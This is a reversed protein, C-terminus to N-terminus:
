GLLVNASTMPSRSLVFADTVTVAVKLKNETAIKVEAATPGLHADHKAWLPHGMLLATGLSKSVLIPYGSIENLDIQGHQNLASCISDAIRFSLNKWREWNPVQGQILDAVDLGLRWDLSPHMRMNDYSRLCDPCSTDCSHSKENGWRSSFDSNIIDVMKGFEKPKGLQTSYGAGNDLADAVFIEHTRLGSGSPHRRSRVGVILESPDILLSAKAARRVMEGFSVLAPYGAPCVDMDTVIAGSPLEDWNTEPKIVLVDTTKMEGIAFSFEAPAGIPSDLCIVSNDSQRVATFQRHNNDNVVVLRSQEHSSITAQNFSWSDDPAALEAVLPSTSAPGVEREDDYDQPSYDTRFGLPEYFVRVDTGAGCEPCTIISGSSTSQELWINECLGCLGYGQPQGMPDISYVRNGRPVFHAFGTVRHVSGDKVLESGPAFKSVAVSLPRDSVVADSLSKVGTPKYGYLSRVRSPFGFMPLLGYEALIQSLQDDLRNYTKQVVDDIESLLNTCIEEVIKVAQEETCSAFTFIKSIRNIENRNRLLRDVIYRNDQWDRAQGFSGHLAERTFSIGLPQLATRLVEAVVARKIVRVRMDLYPSVPAGSTLRLPNAYYYNDHSRDRCLTLAYSFVQGARGARGVRQQYNFRQPPVNAMMTARLAGIDVGAEMTTTVSLVDIPHTLTNERPPPLLAAGAKFYRQRERQVKLPRTQGTLEKIKLRRPQMEALWGYYDGLMENEPLARFDISACGGRHCVLLSNRAHRTHCILCEKASEIDAPIIEYKSVTSDRLSLLWGPALGDILMVETVWKVLEDPSITGLRNAVVALYNKLRSPCESSEVAWRAGPWLHMLGLIRLSSSIVESAQEQTLSTPYKPMVKAQLYGMGISEFDRGARDFVADALVQVHEDRLKRLGHGSPDNVQKWLRQTPPEFFQFWDAGDIKMLSARSGGPSVGLGILTNMTGTVLEPWTPHTNELLKRIEFERTSEELQSNRLLERLGPVNTQIAHRRAYDEPSLDDPEAMVLDYIEDSNQERYQRLVQRVLDRHYNLAVDAATGSADDRSDTFVITRSDGDSNLLGTLRALYHQAAKNQGATHARIPTRVQGRSIASAEQQGGKEDCAPCRSPLAPLQGPNGSPLVANVAWGTAESEPVGLELYGLDFDYKARRFSFSASTGNGISHTWPTGTHIPTREGPWYWVYDEYKRQFVLSGAAVSRNHDAFSSIFRIGPQNGSVFGGLSVDGCQFCYLLELVRSACTPCSILPRDFLQGVGSKTRKSAYESHCNPNSCAWVGKPARALVHVRMPIVDQDHLSDSMKNMADALIMENGNFLQETIKSLSVPVIEGSESVSLKAIARSIDAGSSHADIATTSLIEERIGPEISISDLSVGFFQNAFLISEEDTGLSASTAIVRLQPSNPTLGLRDLLSRIIMAVEAGATGRYTHLEDVVFTFVNQSSEALWDRTKAFMIEERDRLLMINLMSYNTVLIDPPSQIMDWRCLMETSSPDELDGKSISAGAEALDAIERDLLQLEISVESRRASTPPLSGNGITNGTYRGFWIPKEPSQEHILAVAKRLRALQDEVLANTPYLIMTRIAASRTESKRLPTWEGGTQWWRNAEPQSNWQVSETVLSTLIPLLFSETKGSGTGSTVISHRRGNTAVHNSLANAQHERLELQDLDDVFNGFLAKCVTHAVGNPIGLKSILNWYSVTSPYRFIPELLPDAVLAGPETILKQREDLLVENELWYATNFYRVFSERLGDSFLKPSLNGM